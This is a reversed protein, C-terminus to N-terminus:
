RGSGRTIIDSMQNKYHELLADRRRDFQRQKKNLFIENFLTFGVMIAIIAIFYWWSREIWSLDILMMYRDKPIMKKALMHTLEILIAGNLFWVLRTM